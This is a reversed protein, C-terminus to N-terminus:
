VHQPRKRTFPLKGHERRVYSGKRKSEWVVIGMDTDKINKAEGFAVGFNPSKEPHFFRAFGLDVRRGNVSSRLM